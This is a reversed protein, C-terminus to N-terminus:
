VLVPDETTPTPGTSSTWPGSTDSLTSSTEANRCPTTTEPTQSWPRHLLTKFM